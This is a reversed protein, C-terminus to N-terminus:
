GELRQLTELQVIPAVPACDAAVIAQAIRLSRKQAPTTKTDPSRVFELTGREEGCVTCHFVDIVRPRRHRSFM